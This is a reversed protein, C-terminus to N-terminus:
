VKHFAFSRPVLFFFPPSPSSSVLSSRLFSVLIIRHLRSLAVLLRLIKRKDKDALFLEKQLEEVQEIYHHCRQKIESEPCKVVEQLVAQLNFLQTKKEPHHIVWQPIIQDIYERAISDCRYKELRLRYDGSSAEQESHDMSLSPARSRREETQKCSPQHM